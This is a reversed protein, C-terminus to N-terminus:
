FESTLSNEAQERTSDSITNCHKKVCMSEFLSRLQTVKYCLQKEQNRSLIYLCLLPIVKEANIKKLFHSLFKTLHFTFSYPEFYLKLLVKLKVLKSFVICRDSCGVACHFCSMYILIFLITCISFDIPYM